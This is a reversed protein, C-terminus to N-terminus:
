QAARARSTSPADRVGAQRIVEQVREIVRGFDIQPEAAEPGVRDDTRIGHALRGSAVLGKSPICGTSLCDGGPQEAQEVLAVRAGV